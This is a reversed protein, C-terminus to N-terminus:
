TNSYHGRSVFRMLFFYNVSKNEYHVSAVSVLISYEAIACDTIHCHNKKEEIKKEYIISGHNLGLSAGM